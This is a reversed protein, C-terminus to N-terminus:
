FRLFKYTLSYLPGKFSVEKCIIALEYDRFTILPSARIEKLTIDIYLHKYILYLDQSIFAEKLSIINPHKVPVLM